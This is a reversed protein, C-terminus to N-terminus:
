SHVLELACAFPMTVRPPVGAVEGAALTLIPRIRKGGALLSYRVAERFGRRPPFLRALAADVLRRRTALYRDLAFTM